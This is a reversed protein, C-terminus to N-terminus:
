NFDVVWCSLMTKRATLSGSKVPKSKQEALGGMPTKSARWAFEPHTHYRGCRLTGCPKGVGGGTVGQKHRKEIEKRANIDKSAERGLKLQSEVRKGEPPPIEQVIQIKRLGYNRHKVVKSSKEGVDSDM